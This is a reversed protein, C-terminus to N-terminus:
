PPARVCIVDLSTDRARRLKADCRFKNQGDVDGSAFLGIWWCGCCVVLWSIWVFVVCRVARSCVCSHLRYQWVVALAASFGTVNGIEIGMELKMKVALELM